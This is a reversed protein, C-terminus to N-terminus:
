PKSRTQNMQIAQILAAHGDHEPPMRKIELHELIQKLKQKGREQQQKTMKPKPLPPPPNRNPLSDILHKVTPWRESKWVLQDFGVQIRWRDQQENWAVPYRMVADIWVTATAEIADAPPSGNLRLILLRQLGTAVEDNIFLHAM